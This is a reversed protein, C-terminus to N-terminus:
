PTAVPRHTRLFKRWVGLEPIWSVEYVIEHVENARKEDNWVVRNELEHHPNTGLPVSPVPLATARADPTRM